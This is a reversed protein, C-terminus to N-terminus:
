CGEVVGLAKYCQGVPYTERWSSWARCSLGTAEMDFLRSPLEIDSVKGGRSRRRIINYRSKHRM